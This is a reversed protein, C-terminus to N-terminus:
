ESTTSVSVDMKKDANVTEGGFAFLAGVILTVFIVLVALAGTNGGTDKDAM